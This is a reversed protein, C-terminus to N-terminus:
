TLLWVTFCCSASHPIRHRAASSQFLAGAEFLKIGVFAVNPPTRCHNLKFSCFLIICVLEGIPSLILVNEVLCFFWAYAASGNFLRKEALVKRNMPLNCLFYLVRSYISLM